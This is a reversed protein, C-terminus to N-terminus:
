WNELTTSIKVLWLLSQWIKLGSERSKSQFIRIMFLETLYNGSM